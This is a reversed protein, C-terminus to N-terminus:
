ASELAAVCENGLDTIAFGRQGGQTVICGHDVLRYMRQHFAGVSIGLELAAYKYRPTHGLPNACAYKHVYLLTEADAATLRPLDPPRKIAKQREAVSM